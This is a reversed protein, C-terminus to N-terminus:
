IPCSKEVHVYTQNSSEREREREKAWDNQRESQTSSLSGGREGYASISPGNMCLLWPAPTPCSIFRERYWGPVDVSLSPRFLAPPLPSLSPSMVHLCPLSLSLSDCVAQDSSDCSLAWVGMSCTCVLLWTCAFVAACMCVTAETAHQVWQCQHKERIFHLCLGQRTFMMTNDCMIISRVPKNGESCKATKVVLVKSDLIVYVKKATRFKNSYIPLFHAQSVDQCEYSPRVTRLSSLSSIWRKHKVSIHSHLQLESESWFLAGEVELPRPPRHSCLPSMHALALHSKHSRKDTPFNPHISQVCELYVHQLVTSPSFVICLPSFM